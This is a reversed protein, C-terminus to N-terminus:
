LHDITKLAMAWSTVVAFVAAPRETYADGQILARTREALLQQWECNPETSIDLGVAGM